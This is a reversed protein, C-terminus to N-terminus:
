LKIFSVEDVYRVDDVEYNQQFDDLTWLRGMWTAYHEEFRPVFLTARGSKVNVAGFCGPERVGFFYTFFPEQLIFIFFFM